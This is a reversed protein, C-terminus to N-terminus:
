LTATSSFSHQWISAAMGDIGSISIHLKGIFTMVRHFSSLKSGFHRLKVFYKILINFANLPTSAFYSVELLVEQVKASANKIREVNIFTFPFQM